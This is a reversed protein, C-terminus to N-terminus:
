SKRAKVKATAVEMEYMAQAIVAAHCYGDQTSPSAKACRVHNRWTHYWFMHPANPDFPLLPDTM